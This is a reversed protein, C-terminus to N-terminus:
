QSMCLLSVRCSVRWLPYDQATPLERIQNFADDVDLLEEM